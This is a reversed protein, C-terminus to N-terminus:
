GTLIPKFHKVFRPPTSQRFPVLPFTKLSITLLVAVTRNKKGVGDKESLIRGDPM